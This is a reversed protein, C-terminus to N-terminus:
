RQEVNQVCWPVYNIHKRYKINRRKKPINQAVRLIICPTLFVAVGKFYFLCINRSHFLTLVIDTLLFSFPFFVLCQKLYLTGEQNSFWQAQKYQVINRNVMRWKTATFICLAPWLNLGWILVPMTDQLHQWSSRPCGPVSLMCSCFLLETSECQSQVGVCCLDCGSLHLESSYSFSNSVDHTTFSQRLTLISLSFSFASQRRESLYWIDHYGGSMLSTLVVTFESFRFLDYFILYTVFRWFGSLHKLEIEFTSKGSSPAVLHSKNSLFISIRYLVPMNELSLIICLFHFDREHCHVECCESSM